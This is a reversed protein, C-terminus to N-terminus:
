DPERDLDKDRDTVREERAHDFGSAQHHLM